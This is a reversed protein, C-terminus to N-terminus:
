PHLSSPRRSRYVQSAYRVIRDFQRRLLPRALYFLPLVLQRSHRYVLSPLVGIWIFSSCRMLGRSQMRAPAVFSSGSLAPEHLVCEILFIM